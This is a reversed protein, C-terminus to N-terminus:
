LFEMLDYGTGSINALLLKYIQIRVKLKHTRAVFSPGRGMSRARNIYTWRPRQQLVICSLLNCYHTLALIDKARLGYVM